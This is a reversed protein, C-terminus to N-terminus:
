LGAATLEDIFAQTRPDDFWAAILTRLSAHKRLEAVHNHITATAPRESHLEGQLEAIRKFVEPDDPLAARLDEAPFDPREAPM